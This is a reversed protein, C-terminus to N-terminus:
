YLFNGITYAPANMSLELEMILSHQKQAYVVDNSRDAQRM